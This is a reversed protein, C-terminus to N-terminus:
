ITIITHVLYIDICAFAYVPLFVSLYNHCTRLHTFAYQTHFPHYSLTRPRLTHKYLQECLKYYLPSITHKTYHHIHINWFPTNWLVYKIHCNIEYLYKISFSSIISVPEKYLIILCPNQFIFLTCITKYIHFSTNSEFLLM